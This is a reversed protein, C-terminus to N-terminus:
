NYRRLAITISIIVVIPKIIFKKCSYWHTVKQLPAHDYNFIFIPKHTLYVYMRLFMKNSTLSIYRLYYVEIKLVCFSLSYRLCHSNLTTALTAM